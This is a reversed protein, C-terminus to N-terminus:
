KHHEHDIFAGLIMITSSFLSLVASYYASEYINLGTEIVHIIGHIGLCYRVVRHFVNEGTTPGRPSSGLVTRNHAPHELWQALPGFVFAGSPAM